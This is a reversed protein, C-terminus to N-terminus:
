VSAPPHGQSYPLNGTPRSELLAKLYHATQQPKWVFSRQFNPLVVEGRGAMTLWEKVSRSDYTPPTKLVPM